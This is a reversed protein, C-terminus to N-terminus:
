SRELKECTVLQFMKVGITIMIHHHHHPHLLLSGLEVVIIIKVNIFFINSTLEGWRSTKCEVVEPRVESRPVSRSESVARWIM